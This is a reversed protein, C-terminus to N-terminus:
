FLSLIMALISTVLLLWVCYSVAFLAVEKKSKVLSENNKMVFGGKTIQSEVCSTIYEFREVQNSRRTASGSDRSGIVRAAARKTEVM